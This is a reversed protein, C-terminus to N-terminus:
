RNVHRAREVHNVYGGGGEGIYGRVYGKGGLMGRRYGGEGGGYVGRM